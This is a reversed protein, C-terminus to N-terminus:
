SEAPVFGTDSILQKGDESLLWNLIKRAGSDKPEDKRIVACYNIIYPYTGNQINENSPEMGDVSLLKTEDRNHMRNFFYYVSYGISNEANDFEAVQDIIGGMSNITTRDPPLMQLDKMVLNEMISQSGSLANRQFPLISSDTGGVKQWNTINGQYINQIQATTLGDLPNQRNVMFVFGEKAITYYELEVGSQAAQELMQADPEVTFLLDAGGNLLQQFANSTRTHRGFLLLDQESLSLMKRAVATSLPITSTSGDIDPFETIDMIGEFQRLYRDAYARNFEAPQNTVLVLGRDDWYVHYGLLESLLRVPVYTRDHLLLPPTDLHHTNTVYKNKMEDFVTEEVETGGITLALRKEGLFLLSQGNEDWDLDYNQLSEVLFRIPVMTRGDMLLPTVERSVPREILRFEDGVLATGWGPRLAVCREPGATKQPFPLHRSYVPPLVEKTQCQNDFILYHYWKYSFTLYSLGHSLSHVRESPLTKLINGAQDFLLLEGERRATFVGDGFMEMRNIGELSSPMPTGNLDLLQNASYIYGNKIRTYAYTNPEDVRFLTTGQKDIIRVYYFPKGDPTLDFMKVCSIGENFPVTLRAEITFM